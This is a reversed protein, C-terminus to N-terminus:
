FLDEDFPSDTYSTHYGPNTDPRLANPYHIDSKIDLVLKQFKSGIVYPNSVDFLVASNSSANVYIDGVKFLKDTPSVKVNVTEIENYNLFKFDIGIVGSRVIIRRDTAVYEINQIEAVAKITNGIWIWVPTLHLLFFPIIFGLIGLPISGQSMGYSIGVIFAGDFILWILAIPLMKFAAQMVYAKKNPKARWLVSEGVNLIDEIKNAQMSDTVDFYREDIRKM